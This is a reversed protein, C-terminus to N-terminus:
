KERRADRARHGGSIAPPQAKGPRADRLSGAFGFLYLLLFGWDTQMWEGALILVVGALMGGLGASLAGVEMSERETIARRLAYYAALAAAAFFCALGVWGFRLLILLYENDISWFKKLVVRADADLPVRPPWTAVRDTGYGFLPAERIAKSYARILILRYNTADTKYKVGGLEEPALIDRTGETSHLADFVEARWITLALAAVAVGGAVYFWRVRWRIAAFGLLAIILCLMPGRSITFMVGVVNVLPTALWWRPGQRRWARTAAALAFPFLLCQTM